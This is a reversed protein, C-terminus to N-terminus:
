AERPPATFQDFLGRHKERAAAALQAMREARSSSAARRADRERERVYRLEVRSQQSTMAMGKLRDFDEM